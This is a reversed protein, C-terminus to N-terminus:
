SWTIDIDVGDQTATLSPAAVGATYTVTACMHFYQDAYDWTFASPTAFYDEYSSEEKAGDQLDALMGMRASNTTSEGMLLFWYNGAALDIPTTFTFDRASMASNDIITVEDTIRLAAQPNGANDLAIAAKFVQNGVGAGLGDMYITMKTATGAESLTYMSGHLINATMTYSDDPATADGFTSM